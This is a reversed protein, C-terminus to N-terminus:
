KAAEHNVRTAAHQARVARRNGTEEGGALHRAADMARVADAAVGPRLDQDKASDRAFGCRRRSPSIRILTYYAGNLPM